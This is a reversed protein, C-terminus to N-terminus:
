GRVGGAPPAKKPERTDFTRQLTADIVKRPDSVPEKPMQNTNHGAEIHKAQRFHGLHAYEKGKLSGCTQSSNKKKM